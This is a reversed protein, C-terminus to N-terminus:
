HIQKNLKAIIAKIEPDPSGASAVGLAKILSPIENSSINILITTPAIPKPAEVQKVSVIKAKAM